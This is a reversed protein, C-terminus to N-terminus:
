ICYTNNQTEEKNQFQKLKRPKKAQKKIQKKQEFFFKWAEIFM